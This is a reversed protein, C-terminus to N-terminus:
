KAFPVNDALCATAAALSALVVFFNFAPLIPIIVHTIFDWYEEQPPHNQFWYVTYVFKWPKWLLWLIM